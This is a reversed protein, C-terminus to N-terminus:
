LPTKPFRILLLLPEFDPDASADRNRWLNKLSAMTSSKIMLQLFAPRSIASVVQPEPETGKKICCGCAKENPQLACATLLLNIFLPACIYFSFSAFLRLFSGSIPTGHQTYLAANLYLSWFLEFTCLSLLCVEVACTKIAKGTIFLGGLIVVIQFEISYYCSFPCVTQIILKRVGRTFKLAWLWEYTCLKCYM